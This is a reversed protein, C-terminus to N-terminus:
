RNSISPKHVQWDEQQMRDIAGSSGELELWDLASAEDRFVNLENDQTERHGTYIRALGFTLDDNAVIAVKEPRHPMKKALDALGILEASSLDLKINTAIWLEKRSDPFAAIEGIVKSLAEASGQGEIEVRYFGSEGISIQTRIKNAPNETM